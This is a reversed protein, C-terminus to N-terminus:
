GYLHECGPPSAYFANGRYGLEALGTRSTYFGDMVRVKLYSFFLTGANETARDQREDSIFQIIAIQKPESRSIFSGGHWRRSHAEIWALGDRTVKQADFEELRRVPEAGYYAVAVARHAPSLGRAASRVAAADFVTLDIWETIEHVIAADPPEGLMLATLREIMRYEDASFFSPQFAAARPLILETEGGVAVPGGALAHGLHDRSAEYVGAPLEAADLDAGSWGALVVGGGLQLFWQRRTVM